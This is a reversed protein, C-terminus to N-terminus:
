IFIPSRRHTGPVEVYDDNDDGHYSSQQATNNVGMAGTAITDMEHSVFPHLPLPDNISQEATLPEQEARSIDLVLQLEAQFRIETNHVINYCTVIVHVRIRVYTRVYTCVCVCVCVCM